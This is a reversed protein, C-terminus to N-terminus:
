CSNASTPRAATSFTTSRSNSALHPPRLHCRAHVGSVDQPREIFRATALNEALRPFVRPAKLPHSPGSANASAADAIEDHTTLKGNTAASTLEEDPLSDWLGFSIRSAVDFQDASGGGVERYLFRPSKMVLLVVRKVGAFPDGSKEFQRDVYMAALDAPLPRRFAREAFQVCFERLKKLSDKGDAKTGALKELHETVYGAAEIAGDTTAEDWAKSISNGREYGVSRDDPPFHAQVVFVEPVKKPSLYRAPIIEVTHNPRKWALAISSKVPSKAPKEPVEEKAKEKPEDKPKTKDKEKSVDKVNAKDNDKAKDKNEAKDKAKDKKKVKPKPIPTAEAKAFELSIKYARGGLLRITARHEPDDGSKIWADILPNLADNVYLRTSNKTRVVFEYEGTDPAFVSGQWRVSFEEPKIKEPDPSTSAM